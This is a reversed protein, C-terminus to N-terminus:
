YGREKDVLNPLREGRLYAKLNVCFLDVARDMYKESWGSHHPTIVVNDMKWLPSEKPLPETETVDLAAGGIVKQRLAEILQEEHVIGGRSINVLVATDKMARFKAMGFLHYTGQTYPLCLVVFDAKPLVEDLQESSYLSTVFEPKEKKSTDVALVNAGLCNALRAAERGIHGLGVILVVKERLETISGQKEWIKNQQNQFTQYFRRTFILMFGLIHEAIPVAHIGSCNGVIVDSAKVEPTLVREAGASFSHIWKLNRVDTIPPIVWLTGALVDADELQREIELLDSASVKVVEINPVVSRIKEIHEEQFQHFPTEKAEVLLIKM